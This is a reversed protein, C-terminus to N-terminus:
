YFYLLELPMCNYFQFFIIFIFIRKYIIFLKLKRGAIICFYIQFEIANWKNKRLAFAILSM